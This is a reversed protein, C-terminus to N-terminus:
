PGPICPSRDAPTRVLQWPPMPAASRDPASPASAPIHPPRWGLTRCPALRRFRSMSRLSPAHLDNEPPAIIRGAPRSEMGIPLASLSACAVPDGQPSHRLSSLHGPPPDGHRNPAFQDAGHGGAESARCLLMPHFGPDRIRGMLRSRRGQPFRSSILDPREQKEKACKSQSGSM